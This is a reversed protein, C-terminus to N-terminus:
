LEDGFNALKIVKRKSCNQQTKCLNVLQSHFPTYATPLMKSIFLTSIYALSVKSVSKEM